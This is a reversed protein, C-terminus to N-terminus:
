AVNQNEIMYFFISFFLNILNETIQTISLTIWENSSSRDERGWRLNHRGEGREDKRGVRKMGGDGKRTDKKRGREKERTETDLEKRRGEDKEFSVYINYRYIQM